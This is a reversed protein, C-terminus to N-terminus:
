GRLASSRSRGSPWSRRTREPWRSWWSHASSRLSSSGPAIGGRKRATFRRIEQREHRRRLRAAERPDLISDEGGDSGDGNRCVSALVELAEFAATEALRDVCDVWGTEIRFGFDGCRGVVRRCRRVLCRLRRGTSAVGAPARRRSRPRRDGPRRGVIPVCGCRAHKSGLRNAARRQARGTAQRRPRLRGPAEGCM